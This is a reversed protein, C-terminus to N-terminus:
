GSIFHALSFSLVFALPWPSSIALVQVQCTYRQKSTPSVISSWTNAATNPMDALRTRCESLMELVELVELASVARDGVLVELVKERSPVKMSQTNQGLKM